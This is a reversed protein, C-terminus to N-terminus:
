VCVCFSLSPTCYTSGSQRQCDDCHDYGTILPADVDATYTVAKCLCHGSLPMIAISHSPIPPSIFNIRALHEFSAPVQPVKPSSPSCRPPATSYKFDIRPWSPILEVYHNRLVTNLEVTWGCVDKGGRRCNSRSCGIRHIVRSQGSETM